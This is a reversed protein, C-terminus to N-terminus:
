GSGLPRIVLSLRGGVGRPEVGYDFLGLLAGAQLVEFASGAAEFAPVGGTRGGEVRCDLGTATAIAEALADWDRIPPRIALPAALLVELRSPVGAPRSAVAAPPLAPPRLQADRPVMWIAGDRIEFRAELMAAVKRCVDGLAAQEKPLYVVKQSAVLAPHFILDVGFSSAVNRAVVSLPADIWAVTGTRALLTRAQEDSLADMERDALRRWVRPLRQPDAILVTGDLVVAELEVWRALWRLAQRGTLHAAYLRVRRDATEPPVSEDLVCTLGLREALMRAADAFRVGQWEVPCPEDLSGAHPAAVAILPVAGAVFLGVCMVFRSIFGAVHMGQNYEGVAVLVRSAVIHM